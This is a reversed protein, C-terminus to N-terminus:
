QRDMKYRAIVIEDIRRQQQRNMEEQYAHHRTQRLEDLLKRKQRAHLYVQLQEQYLRDAEVIAQRLQEELRLLSKEQTIAYHLDDGFAGRLLLEYRQDAYGARCQSAEALQQRLISLTERRQELTREERKELEERLRLVAALPFRFPM